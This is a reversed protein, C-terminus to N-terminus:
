EAAAPAVPTVIMFRARCNNYEIAHYRINVSFTTGDKRKHTWTGADGHIVDHAVYKEFRAVEETPRLERASMGIMEERSYGYLASAATNADLVLLSKVDLIWLPMTSSELLRRYLETDDRMPTSMVCRDTSAFIPWLGELSGHGKPTQRIFGARM